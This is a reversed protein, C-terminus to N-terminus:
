HQLQFWFILIEIPSYTRLQTVILDVLVLMISELEKLYYVKLIMVKSIASLEIKLMKRNLLPKLSKRLSHILNLLKISNKKPM